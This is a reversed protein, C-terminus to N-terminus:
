AICLSSKIRKTYSIHWIFLSAKQSILLSFWHLRSRGCSNVLVWAHPLSCYPSQQPGPTVAYVFRVDLWTLGKLSVRHCGNGKETMILDINNTRTLWVAEYLAGINPYCSFAFFCTREIKIYCSDDVTDCWSFMLYSFGGGSYNVVDGSVFAVARRGHCVNLSVSNSAELSSSGGSTCPSVCLSCLTQWTLCSVM